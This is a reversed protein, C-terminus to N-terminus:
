LVKLVINHEPIKWTAKFFEKPSMESLKRFEKNFYPQDSFNSQHSIDTFDKAENEALRLKISHRFRVIRRFTAASCGLHNVCLRELKKQHFGAEFSIERISRTEELNLLCDVVQSFRELEPPNFKQLLYNELCKVRKNQTDYDFLQKTFNSWDAFDPRFLQYNQLAIKSYLQQFF